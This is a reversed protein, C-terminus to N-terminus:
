FHNSPITLEETLNWVRQWLETCGVKTSKDTFTTGREHDVYGRCYSNPSYIDLARWYNNTEIPPSVSNRELSIWRGDDLQVFLSRHNHGIFSDRLRNPSIGIALFFDRYAHTFNECHGGNNNDFLTFLSDSGNRNIDIVTYNSVATYIIYYQEELTEAKQGLEILQEAKERGSLNEQELISAVDKKIKLMQNYDISLPHHGRFNEIPSFMLERQTLGYGVPLIKPLHEPPLEPVNEIIPPHTNAPSLYIALNLFTQFNFSEISTVVQGMIEFSKFRGGAIFGIRDEKTFTIFKDADGDEIIKDFRAGLLWKKGHFIASLSLAHLRGLPVADGAYLDRKIPFTYEASLILNETKSELRTFLDHNEGFRGIGNYFLMYRTGASWTPIWKSYRTFDLKAEARNDWTYTNSYAHEIYRAGSEHKRTPTSTGLCFVRGGSLLSLSFIRDEMFDTKLALRGKPWILWTSGATGNDSGYPLGDIRSLPGVPQYDAIAAASVLLSLAVDPHLSYRDQYGAGIGMVQAGSLSHEVGESLIGRWLARVFFRKAEYSLKLGYDAFQDDNNLYSYDFGIRVNGYHVGLGTSNYEPSYIHNTAFEIRQTDNAAEM